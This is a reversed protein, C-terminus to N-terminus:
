VIFIFCSIHALSLKVHQLKHYKPIDRGNDIEKDRGNDAKVTRACFGSCLFAV